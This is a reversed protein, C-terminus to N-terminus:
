VSVGALWNEGRKILKHKVAFLKPPFGWVNHAAVTVPNVGFSALNDEFFCLYIM